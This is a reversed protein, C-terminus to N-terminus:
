PVPEPKPLIKQGGFWSVQKDAPVRLNNLIGLFVAGLVIALLVRINLTRM